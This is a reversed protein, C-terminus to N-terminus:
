AAQHKAALRASLAEDPAIAIAADIVASNWGHDGNGAKRGFQDALHAGLANLRNYTAESVYVTLRKKKPKGLRM